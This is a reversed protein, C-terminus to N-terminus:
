RRGEEYGRGMGEGGDRDEAWIGAKDEREGVERRKRGQIERDQGGKERM